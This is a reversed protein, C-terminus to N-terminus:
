PAPQQVFLLRCIYLSIAPCDLALVPPLLFGQIISLRTYKLKARTTLRSLLPTTSM